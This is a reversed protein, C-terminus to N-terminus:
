KFIVNWRPRSFLNIEPEFTRKNAKIGLLVPDIGKTGYSINILRLEAFYNLADTLSKLKELAENQIASKTFITCYIQLAEDFAPTLDFLVKDQNRLLRMDYKFRSEAEAKAQQFRIINKELEMAYENEILGLEIAKKTNMGPITGDSLEFLRILCDKPKMAALELFQDTEITEADLFSAMDSLVDCSIDIVNRWANLAENKKQWNVGIVVPKFNQITNM